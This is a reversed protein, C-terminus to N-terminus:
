EAATAVIEDRQNPNIFDWRAEVTFDRLFKLRFNQDRPATCVDRYACRFPRYCRFHNMQWDEMEYASTQFLKTITAQRRVEDEAWERINDKSYSIPHRKIHLKSKNCVIKELIVGWCHRGILHGAIWVYGMMQHSPKYEAVPDDDDIVSTKVDLPGIMGQWDVIRDLRGGYVLGCGNPSYICPEDLCAILTPQENRLVKLPNKQEFDAWAVFLEMMRSRNRGYRDETIEPIEDEIIGAVIAPNHTELWTEATKHATRGWRFSFNEVKPVRGLIHQYYGMRLCEQFTGSTSHDFHTPMVANLGFYKYREEATIDVAITM